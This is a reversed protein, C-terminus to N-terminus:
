VQMDPFDPNEQARVTKVVFSPSLKPSRFFKEIIKSAHEKREKSVHLAELTRALADESSLKGCAHDNRISELESPAQLLRELIKFSDTVKRMIVVYHAPINNKTFERLEATDILKEEVMAMLHNFDKQRGAYLKGSAVDYPSICRIKFEGLDIDNTREEWGSPLDRLFVNTVGGVYFGHERRFASDPGLKDVFEQKQEPPVDKKTPVLDIDYSTDLRTNKGLVILLAMSGVIFCEDDPVIARAAKAALIIDVRTLKRPSDM